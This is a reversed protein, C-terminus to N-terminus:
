FILAMTFFDGDDTSFDGNTTSFGMQHKGITVNVPAFVPPLAHHRTSETVYGNSTLVANGDITMSIGIPGGGVRFGSGSLFALATGELQCDFTSQQPIPGTISWLFSESGASVVAATFMDDSDTTTGDLPTLQITHSGFPLTVPLLTAVLTRRVNNEDTSINATGIPNGDILVNVGLVPNTQTGQVSGAVYILLPTDRDSQFAFPSMPLPGPTIFLVEISETSM